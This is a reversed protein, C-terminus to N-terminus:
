NERGAGEESERLKSNYGYNELVYIEFGSVIYGGVMHILESDISIEGFMGFQSNGMELFQNDDKWGGEGM